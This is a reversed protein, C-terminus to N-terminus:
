RIPTAAPFKWRPRTRRRACSRRPPIRSLTRIGDGTPMSRRKGSRKSRPATTRATAPGSIHVKGTYDGFAAERRVNLTGFSDWTPYTSAVTDWTFGSLSAWTVGTSVFIRASATIGSGYSVRGMEGTYIDYFVGASPLTSGSPPYIWIIKGYRDHFCGDGHDSQRRRDLSQYVAEDRRRDTALWATSGISITTARWITFRANIAVLCAASLPGPFQLNAGPSVASGAQARIVWQSEEGFIAISTRNFREMGVGFDGSDVLAFNFGGGSPFTEPDNFDSIQVNFPTRLFVARNAAIKVDLPTGTPLGGLLSYTSTGPWIKPTNAGNVIIVKFTGGVNMTACRVHNTNAGSLATGSIDEWIATTYNYAWVKTLTGTIFKHAGAASKFYHLGMVRDAPNTASLM